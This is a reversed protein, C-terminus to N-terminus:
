RVSLALRLVGDSSLIADSATQIADMLPAPYVGLFIIGALVPGVTGLIYVPKVGWSDALRGAPVAFVGGLVAMPLVIHSM